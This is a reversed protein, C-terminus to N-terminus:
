LTGSALIRPPFACCSSWGGAAVVDALASAGVGRRRPPSLASLLDVPARRGCCHRSHATPGRRACGCVRGKAAEQLLRKIGVPRDDRELDIRGADSAQLAQVFAQRSEFAARGRGIHVERPDLKTFRPM